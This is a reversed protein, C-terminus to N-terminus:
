LKKGIRNDKKNMREFVLGYPRPEDEGVGPWNFDGEMGGFDTPALNM